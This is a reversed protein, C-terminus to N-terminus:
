QHLRVKGRAVDDGTITVSTGPGFLLVTWQRGSLGPTRLQKKDTIVGPIWTPSTPDIEFQVEVREGIEFGRSVLDVTGVPDPATQARVFAEDVVVRVHVSTPLSVKVFSDDRERRLRLTSTPTEVPKNGSSTAILGLVPNISVVTALEGAGLLVKPADGSRDELPGVIVSLAKLHAVPTGVWGRSTQATPTKPRSIKGARPRPDYGPKTQVTMGGLTQGVCQDNIQVQAYGDRAPDNTVSGVVFDGRTALHFNGDGDVAVQDGQEFMRGM